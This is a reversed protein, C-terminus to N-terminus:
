RVCAALTELLRKNEASTMVAIRICAPLGFSTCDRVLVGRTCLAECLPGVPKGTEVLLFNASSPHCTLGLEHLGKVLNQREKAIAMRSAALDNRHLLAEMTFAEACANLCWPSRITEIKEILEPDGFGFGIRLGPVSFSKTLSHLVFLAPDRVASLSQDPDALDIFAEDCFLIGGYGRVTDLRALLDEKRHLTGTPSNPNCVFSVTAADQRTVREAGALRASLEYEGFTPPELYYRGPAASYRFIASCFARIIEVSGNGVCIEGPNRGYIEGIRQKLEYYTDDPYLSLTEPDCRWEVHPPYPNVSASFDLVTKHTKEHQRKGNGGHVVRKPFDAAM